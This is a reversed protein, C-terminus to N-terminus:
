GLKEGILIASHLFVSENLYGLIDRIIREHHEIISLYNWGSQM